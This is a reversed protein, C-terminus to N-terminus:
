PEDPPETDAADELPSSADAVTIGHERFWPHLDAGAAQGLAAVIDEMSIRQITGHSSKKNAACLGVKQRLAALYSKTLGEGYLRTLDSMVWLWKGNAPRGEASPLGIDLSTGNPDARRFPAIPTDM